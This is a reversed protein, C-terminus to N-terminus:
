RRAVGAADRCNLSIPTCVAYSGPAHLLTMVTVNFHSYSGPALGTIGLVAGWVHIILLRGEKEARLPFPPAKKTHTM